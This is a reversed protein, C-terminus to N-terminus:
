VKLGDIMMHGTWMLEADGTQPDTRVSGPATKLFVLMWLCHIFLIRIQLHETKPIITREM